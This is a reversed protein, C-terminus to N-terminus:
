TPVPEVEPVGVGLFEEFWAAVLRRHCHNTKTFPPREYCMMVPETGAALEHLDAWVKAPDLGALIQAYALEYTERDMHLMDRTPALQRYNRYSAPAGRTGLGIGIRGPGRYISWASTKMGDEM